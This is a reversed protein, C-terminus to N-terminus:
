FLELQRRSEVLKRWAKTNAEANLWRRVFAAPGGEEEVIGRHLFHSRYGTETIPLPEGEPELVQVELHSVDHSSMGLWNPEYSVSLTIGEWVLAETEIQRERAVPAAPSAEPSGSERPKKGM